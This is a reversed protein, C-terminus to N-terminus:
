VEDHRWVLFFDANITNCDTQTDQQWCTPLQVFVNLFMVTEIHLLLFTWLSDVGSAWNWYFCNPPSIFAVASVFVVCEKICSVFINLGLCLM